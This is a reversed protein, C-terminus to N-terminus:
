FPVIVSQTTVDGDIRTVIFLRGYDKDTLDEAQGGLARVLDPITNSHGAVLVDRQTSILQIFTKPHSPDYLTVPMNQQKAIDAVTQTTRKYDTSFVGSLPIYRFYNALAAARQQGKFTLNPDDGTQKEFHRVLYWRQEASAEGLGVTLILALFTLYYLRVSTCRM